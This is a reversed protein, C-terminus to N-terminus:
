GGDMWGRGRVDVRYMLWYSLGVTKCLCCECIGEVCWGDAEACVGM